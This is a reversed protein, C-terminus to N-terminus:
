VRSLGAEAGGHQGETAAAAKGRVLFLFVGDPGEALCEVQADVVQIGRKIWKSVTDAKVSCLEAAEGIALHSPRENSTYAYGSNISQANDIFCIGDFASLQTSM